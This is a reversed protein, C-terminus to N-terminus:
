GFSRTIPPSSVQWIESQAARPLHVPDRLDLRHVTIRRNFAHLIESLCDDGSVFVHCDIALGPLGDTGDTTTPLTELADEAIDFLHENASRALSLVGGLCRSLAIGRLVHADSRSSGYGCSADAAVRCFHPIAVRILRPKPIRKSPDAYVGVAFHSPLVHQQPENM